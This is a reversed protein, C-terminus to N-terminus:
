MKKGQNMLMQASNIDKKFASDRIQEMKKVSRKNSVIYNFFSLIIFFYIISIALLITYDKLFFIILMVYILTLIMPFLIKNKNRSTGIPNMRKNKIKEMKNQYRENLMSNYSGDLKSM